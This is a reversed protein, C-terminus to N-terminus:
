KKKVLNKVSTRHEEGALLRMINKRHAIWTLLNIVLIAAFLCVLYSVLIGLTLWIAVSRVANLPTDFLVPYWTANLLSYLFM